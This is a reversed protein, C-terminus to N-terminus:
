DFGVAPVLSGVKILSLWTTLITIYAGNSCYTCYIISDENVRQARIWALCLQNETTKVAGDDEFDEFITKQLRLRQYTKQTINQSNMTYALPMRLFILM